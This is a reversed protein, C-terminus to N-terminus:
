AQGQIQGQGQRAGALAALRRRAPPLAELGIAPAAWRELFRGTLSLAAALEGPTARAGPLRLFAPLPLLRDAYPAGAARSVARGSRPSVWILDQRTGTAACQSLDLGYGLEELLTLEWAAYAEPWDERQAAIADFLARSAPYLGPQPEDEPLFAALLAAAAGLAALALPAELVLGARARIAEARYAGLQSELRGRWQLSLQAGIQFEAARRPAAAGRALGRRRGHTATLADLILGGEGHPATGILIGEDRWEM